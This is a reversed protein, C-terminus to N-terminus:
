EVRIGPHRSSGAVASSACLPPRAILDAERLSPATRRNPGRSVAARLSRGVTCARRVAALHTSQMSELGLTEVRRTELSWGERRKHSCIVVAGEDISTDAM